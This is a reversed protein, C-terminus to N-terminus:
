AGHLKRLDIRDKRSCRLVRELGCIRRKGGAELTAPSGMLSLRLEGGGPAKFVEMYSTRISSGAALSEVWM